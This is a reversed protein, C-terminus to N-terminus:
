RRGHGGGGVHGGGVHGGGGRYGGGHARGYYARSPAVRIRADHLRGPEARYHRWAGGDRYFWGGNYWYAAHGDYYTPTATAIYADPPYGDPADDVDVGAYCASMAGVSLMLLFKKM